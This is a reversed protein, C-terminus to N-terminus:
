LIEAVGRSEVNRDVGAHSGGEQPSDVPHTAATSRPAVLAPDHEAVEARVQQANLRHVAKGVVRYANGSPSCQFM